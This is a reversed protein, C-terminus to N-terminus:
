SARQGWAQVNYTPSWQTPNDRINVWDQYTATLTPKQAIPLVYADQAMIADGQNIADAAKDLDFEEAGQKTFKDVDANSYAGFNSGSGTVWNQEAPGQFFPSGVWAFIMIDFDGTSLTQGLTETEQIKVDIGIQKLEAQVLESTTQRLQNGKTYRFRLPPVAAGAKTMLKGNAITYGADTLIKKAKDVDGSGQGTPTVVDKYHKDGPFFNHSGLPKAAKDFVGYTKDIITKVNIATFLAQRLAKDALYKNKLNLDLHEWQYGHGIRSIVGPIQNLQQVLNANPQPNMGLVEKNQMAPALSSQEVVFKFILKDLTPKIAGYWKDNKKEVISQDKNFTDILYPGGSWTPVTSTFWDNASNVGAPTDLDFGQKTALHSPYLGDTSFLAKWDAYVKGDDFTMTVTKGNDSGVISKVLEYGSTSAPVCKTCDTPKGSNLKWALKFDDASIATGDSWVADPKIKYVVTQPSQNTLEASEILDSNLTITGSPDSRYVQPLIGALAQQAVLTNGEATYINWSTFTQDLAFIYQGGPKTKGSNCTNPSKDCDAYGANASNSDNNSTSGGGCASIALLTATAVAVLGTLGKSRSRM